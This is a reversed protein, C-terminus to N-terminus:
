MLRGSHICRSFADAGGEGMVSDFPLHEGQRHGQVLRGVLIILIHM